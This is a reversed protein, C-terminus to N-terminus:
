GDPFTQETAMQALRGLGHKAVAFHFPQKGQALFNGCVDIVCAADFAVCFLDHNNRTGLLREIQQAHQQEVRLVIDPHFVRAVNGRANCELGQATPDYGQADIFLADVYLM